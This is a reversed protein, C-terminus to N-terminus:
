NDPDVKCNEKSPNDLCKPDMNAHLANSRGLWFTERLAYDGSFDVEQVTLLPLAMLMLLILTITQRNLVDSLSKGLKNPDTEKMFLSMEEEPVEEKIVEKQNKKKKKKQPVDDEDQM